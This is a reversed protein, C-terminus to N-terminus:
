HTLFAVDDLWIEYPETAILADTQRAAQFRLGMFEAENVLEGQLVWSKLESWRIEHYTFDDSAAIRKEFHAYCTGTCRGGASLPLTDPTIVGANLSHTSRIRFAFGAYASADYCDMPVTMETGWGTVGVGSIRLAYGAGGDPMSEPVLLGQPQDAVGTGDNRAQWHAGGRGDAAIILGDGDEFDDFLPADGRAQTCAGTSGASGASGASGGGGGNGGGSGGQASAGTGDMGAAGGLAAGGSGAADAGTDNKESRAGCGVVGASVLVLLSLGCRKVVLMPVDKMM